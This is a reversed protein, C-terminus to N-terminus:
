RFGGLRGRADIARRELLRHALSQQGPEDDLPVALQLQAADSRQKRDSLGVDAAGVARIGQTGWIEVCTGQVLDSNVVRPTDAM